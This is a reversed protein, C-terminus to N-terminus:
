LWDALGLKLIEILQPDNFQYDDPINLVIIKKQLADFQQKIIDRHKYEMVFVVDAWDM